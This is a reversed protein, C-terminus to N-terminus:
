GVELGNEVTFALTMVLKILNNGHIFKEFSGM